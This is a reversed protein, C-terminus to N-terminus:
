AQTVQDAVGLFLESDLDGKLLELAQVKSLPAPTPFGTGANAAAKRAAQSVKKSTTPCPSLNVQTTRGPYAQERPQWGPPPYPPRSPPNPTPQQQQLLTQGYGNPAGCRYCRSKTWWCKTARCQPNTCNWQGFEGDAFQMGGKVRGRTRVVSDMSIGAEELSWDSQLIKSGVTLYFCATPVGMTVAIAEHLDSVLGGSYVPVMRTKGELSITMVQYGSHGGHKSSCMETGSAAATGASAVAAALPSRDTEGKTTTIGLAGAGHDYKVGSFCVVFACYICWAVDFMGVLALLGVLAGAIAAASQPQRGVFLELSGECAVDPCAAAAQTGYMVKSPGVYGPCFRSPDEITKVKEGQFRSSCEESFCRAWLMFPIDSENWSGAPYLIESGWVLCSGPIMSPGCTEFVSLIRDTEWARCPAAGAAVLIVEWARHPADGAAALM